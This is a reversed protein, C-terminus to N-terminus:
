GSPFDDFRTPVHTNQATLRCYDPVQSRQLISLDGPIQAGECAEAGISETTEVRAHPKGGNQQTDQTDYRPRHTIRGAIAKQLLRRGYARSKITAQRVYPLRDV